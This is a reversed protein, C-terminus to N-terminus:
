FKPGIDNETRDSSFLDSNANYAVYAVTVGYGSNNAAGSFFDDASVCKLNRSGSRGYGSRVLASRMPASYLDARYHRFELVVFGSLTTRGYTVAMSARACGYEAGNSLQGMSETMPAPTLLSLIDLDPVWPIPLEFIPVICATPASSVCDSAASFFDARVLPLGLDVLGRGSIPLSPRGHQASDGVESRFPVSIPTAFGLYVSAFADVLNPVQVDPHSMATTEKGGNQPGLSLCCSKGLVPNPDWFKPMVLDSPCSVDPASSTPAPRVTIGLDTYLFPLVMDPRDVKSRSSILGLLAIELLVASQSSDAAEVARKHSWTGDGVVVLHNTIPVRDRSLSPSVGEGM